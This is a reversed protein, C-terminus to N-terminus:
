QGWFVYSAEKESLGLFKSIKKAEGLTLSSIGGKMKRYLTSRDMGLAMALAEQTTNREVIKQKLYETKDAM